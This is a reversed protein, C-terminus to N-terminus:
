EAAELTIAYATESHVADDGIALPADDMRLPV